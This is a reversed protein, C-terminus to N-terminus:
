CRRGQQSEADAQWDRAMNDDDKTRQGGEGV